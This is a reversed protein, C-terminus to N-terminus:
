VEGVGIWTWAIGSTSAPRSTIPPACVPVPFVAPKVSGSRCRSDCCAFVLTEGARWGTRASMRAGVRSSAACTSSLTRPYPRYMGSRLVRDEAADRDVRLDLRQAPADLDEDRRGAAQEIM